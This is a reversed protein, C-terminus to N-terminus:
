VSFAPSVDPGSSDGDGFLDGFLGILPDYWEDGGGDSAGTSVPAAVAPQIVAVYAVLGLAALLAVTMM